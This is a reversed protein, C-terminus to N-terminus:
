KLWEQNDIYWRVTDYIGKKITLRPIWSLNKKIKDSNISYRFDHGLRDEVNTILDTYSKENKRPALKDLTSCIIEVLNKNSIENNGGINYSQGISGKNLIIQLAQCHDSVHLWDRINSGDGYLPIKVELLASKITNPILKESQQYPGYNNSCNSVITPLGYTKFFARVFHDASAKSASYPNNPYYKSTENFSTGIKNLSGFVEDTSVQLFKFNLKEQNKSSKWFHLANELLNFTGEINSKIFKRPSSISTDVHTEAAFNIVSLPKYDSFIQRVLKRNNIDDIFLKVKPNRELKRKLIFSDKYVFKDIVIIKENNHAFYNQLFNYGIFGLAGTILIM